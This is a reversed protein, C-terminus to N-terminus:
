WKLDADDENPFEPLVLTDDGAAAIAKSAEAWGSRTLRSPARIVLAGDRVYVDAEAQGELGLQALLEDPIIIGTEDGIRRIAIRM